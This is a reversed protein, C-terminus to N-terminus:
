CYNPLGKPILLFFTEGAIIQRSSVFYWRCVRLTSGSADIALMLPLAIIDDHFKSSNLLINRNRLRVRKMWAILAAMAYCGRSIDCLDHNRALRSSQQRTEFRPSFNWIKFFYERRWACRTISWICTCNMRLLLVILWKHKLIYM